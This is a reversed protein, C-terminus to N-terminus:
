SHFNTQNVSIVGRLLRYGYGRVSHIINIGFHKKIKNRLRSISKELVRSDYLKINLGMSEAMSDHHLINGEANILADLAKMEQYALDLKYEDNYLHLCTQDLTLKVSPQWEPTELLESLLRAKEDQDNPVNICHDAGALYCEIKAHPSRYNIAVIIALEAPNTRLKKILALCDNLISPSEIDILVTDLTQTAIDLSPPNPYDLTYVHTLNPVFLQRLKETSRWTRGIALIGRQSNETKSEPSMM